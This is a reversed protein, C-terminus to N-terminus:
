ASVGKWGPKFYTQPSAGMVLFEMLEHISMAQMGNTFFSSTRVYPFTPIIPGGCKQYKSIDAGPTTM